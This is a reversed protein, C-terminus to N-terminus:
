RKVLVIPAENSARLAAYLARVDGWRGAEVTVPRLEWRRTMVLVGDHEAWSAELRGLDNIIKLDAPVEDLAFGEPLRVAVTEAFCRAELAIPLTRATDSPMWSHRRSTPSARFTLMRGAVLRAFRPSEYEVRLEFRGAVSDETTAVSGINVTGGQAPLWGELMRRYDSETGGRRSEREQRAAQGVSHEVLKARLAGDADLTADIRRTLANAEFPMVPLRVLGGGSSTVLLGLSGQQDLPIDGFATIPDTPDFVAISGRKGGDLLPGAYERPMRIAAICHNFQEVSTWGADVRDRDGWYVPLLWAEVGEARLLTCLLNAKDKCDGYGADLVTAAPHPRYGWGIGLRDNRAVYNLSQVFRAINRIRELTDASPGAVTRARALVGPAPESSPASLEAMWTSADSWNSFAVGAPSRGPGSAVAQVCLLSGLDPRDPTLSEDPIPALDRMLWSWSSGEKRASASDANVLRAKAELGPPLELEFRSWASPLETRFWWLWQAFLPDEETEWEYAFTQGVQIEPDSATLMRQDTYLQGEGLASLDTADRRSWQRLVGGSPTLTWARFGTAESSGKVYGVYVVAQDKGDRKLVRLAYRTVTVIRGKSPVRVLREDHLVVAEAGSSGPPLPRVLAQGLWEPLSGARAPAAIVLVAIAVAALRGPAVSM